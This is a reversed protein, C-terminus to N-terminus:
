IFGFCLSANFLIYILEKWLVIVLFYDGREYIFKYLTCARWSYRNKADPCFPELSSFCVRESFLGLDYGDM